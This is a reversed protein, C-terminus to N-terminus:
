QDDEILCRSDELSVLSFSWYYDPKAKALTLRSVIRWEILCHLKLVSFWLKDGILVKVEFSSLELRAWGKHIMTYCYFKRMWIWWHHVYSKESHNIRRLVNNLSWCCRSVCKLYLVEDLVALGTNCLSTLQIQKCTVYQAIHINNKSRSTNRKNLFWTGVAYRRILM